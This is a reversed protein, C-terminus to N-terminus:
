NITLSYVTDVSLPAPSSSDTMQIVINYYTASNTPTGSIVNGSLTLGAPLDTSGPALAWNYPPTGGTASFTVSYAVGNAGNPLAPPPPSIQILAEAALNALSTGNPYVVPANTTGDFSGWSWEQFATELTMSSPSSNEYVPGVKNFTITSPPDITGPGALSAPVNAQNFNVNRTYTSVVPLAGPGSAMDSAAFVFDPKTVVRRFTRTVLVGNTFLSVTYQNTIPTYFSGSLSDYNDDAVSVFQIQGVGLYDAVAASNTSTTNTSVVACIPSEAEYVHTTSYTVLSQSYFYGASNTAAVLVNTTAVVNTGQTSLIINTGCLYNTNIYYDGSPVNTLTITTSTTNTVLTGVPAGNTVGVTVTLLMASTNTYVTLPSNTIVNAFTDYYNTVIAGIVNTAFVLAPECVGPEIWFQRNTYTYITNQVWQASGFNNTTGAAAITNTYSVLKTVALPTLITFGCWNTPLIFFDGTIGYQRVTTTTINTAQPSGVPAGILNTVSITQNTVTVNTGYLSRSTNYDVFPYFTGNSDLMLNGFVYTYCVEYNTYIGSILTTQIPPSGAPAGIRNTVYTIYNTTVVNTPYPTASLVVLGPYLAQLQAIATAPDDAQGTTNTLARLSFLGFDITGSTIPPPVSNPPPNLFQGTGWNTVDPGPQNTYYATINTIYVFSYSNTTLTIVLGPYLAQLAAPNNTLAALAFATYNSTYLLFPPGYSVGGGGGGSSSVLVSGAAPSELYGASPTDYNNTSYLWRLGAVDDRTLGTYFSGIQLADEGSGSAVPPNNNLPDAPIELADADPPSAGAQGCNEYIYYSYLEDNVYPSYQIQNLPSTIVDFNRQIVLYEYGVSNNYAAPTCSAGAPIYRDHLAWTYRVADALGLQEMMISLTTSKVDRLELAQATYNESQSNLPCEALNPSYSDVGNTLLGTVNNTTFANNLIDFAQEVALEGSAGFWDGFTSDFTYYLVPTNRRYGEGLNKPGAPLGDIFFPPGFGGIPNYGILTVQWADGGNAVPGLLAFGWASQLGILLGGVCLFSKILQRMSM